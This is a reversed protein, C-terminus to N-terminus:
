IASHGVHHLNSLVRPELNADVSSDPSM